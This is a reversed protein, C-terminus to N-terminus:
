RGRSGNTERAAASREGRRRAQQGVPAKISRTEPLQHTKLSCTESCPPVTRTHGAFPWSATFGAAGLAVLPAAV